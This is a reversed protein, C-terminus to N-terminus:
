PSSHEVCSLWAELIRMEDEPVGGGMPMTGEEVVRARIRDRLAIAQEETDLDIGTPAGRRDPADEAHCSRCWTAVFGDAWGDWTPLCEEAPAAAAPADGTEVAKSTGCAWLGVSLM